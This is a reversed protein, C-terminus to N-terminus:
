WGEESGRLPVSQSVCTTSLSSLVLCSRSQTQGKPEPTVSVQETYQPGRVGRGPLPQVQRGQGRASFPHQPLFNSESASSLTVGLPFPGINCTLFAAQFPTGLMPNAPVM